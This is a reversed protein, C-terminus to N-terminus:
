CEGDETMSHEDVSIDDVPTEPEEDISEGDVSDDDVLVGGIERVVHIFSNKRRKQLGKDTFQVRLEVDGEIDQHSESSSAMGSMSPRRESRDHLCASQSSTNSDRSRARKRERHLGRPLASNSAVSDTLPDQKDENKYHAQSLRLM